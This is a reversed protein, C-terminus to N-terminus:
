HRLVAESLLIEILGSEPAPSFWTLDVLEAGTQEALARAVEADAERFYRVQPQAVPLRAQRTEIQRFGYSRLDDAYGSADGAGDALILAVSPVPGTLPPLACVFCTFPNDPGTLPSPKPPTALDPKAAAVRLPRGAQMDPVSRALAAGRGLAMVGDAPAPAPMPLEAQPPTTAVLDPRAAPDPPGDAEGPLAANEGVQGPGLAAVVFDARLQPDPAPHFAPLADIVSAAHAVGASPRGAAGANGNRISTVRLPIRPLDQVGFEHAARNPVYTRALPAGAIDPRRAPLDEAPATQGSEGRRSAITVPDFAGIAALEIPAADEALPRMAFGDPMVPRTPRIALGSEPAGDAQPQQMRFAFRDPAAGADTAVPGSPGAPLAGADDMAAIAAAVPRTGPQPPAFSEIVSDTRIADPRGMVPAAVEATSLTEPETALADPPQRAAIAAMRMPPEAPDTTPLVEVTLSGDPHVPGAREAVAVDAWSTMVAGDNGPVVREARPPMPTTALVEPPISQTTEGTLRPPDAVRDGAFDQNSLTDPAVPPVEPTSATSQQASPAPTESRLPSSSAVIAERSAGVGVGIPAPGTAGRTVDPPVVDSAWDLGVGIALVATGCLALGVLGSGRIWADRSREGSPPESMPRSGGKSSASDSPGSSAPVRTGDNASKGRSAARGSLMVSIDSISEAPSKEVPAKEIREARKARAEALRREFNGGPRTRGKVEGPQESSLVRPGATEPPGPVADQPDHTDRTM